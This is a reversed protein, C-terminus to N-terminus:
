FTKEIYDVKINKLLEIIFKSVKSNYEEILENWIKNKYFNRFQIAEEKNDTTLYYCFEKDNKYNRVRCYYKNNKFNYNPEFATALFRNLSKPILLCTEPSYIKPNINKINCIIDKDLDLILNNDFINKEKFNVCWDCFKQFNYWEESIVVNEYRREKELCRRLLNTWKIYFEKYENINYKGEGIIGVGNKRKILPNYIDGRLISTRSTEKELGGELFKILYYSNSGKKDLKKLIKFDGGCKSPYINGIIIKELISDDFVSYKADLIGLNKTEKTKKLEVKLKKYKTKLFELDYFTKNNIKYSNLVRFQGSNSSNLIDGIEINDTFNNNILNYKFQYATRKYIHNTAVFKFIVFSSSIKGNDEIDLVLIDGFKDFHYLNGKKILQYFEKEM